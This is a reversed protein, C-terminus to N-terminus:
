TSSFSHVLTLGERAAGEHDVQPVDLIRELRVDDGVVLKSEVTRVEAALQCGM